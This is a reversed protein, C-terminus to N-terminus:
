CANSIVKVIDNYSTVIGSRLPLTILITFSCRGREWIVGRTYASIM